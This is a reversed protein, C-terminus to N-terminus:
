KVELPSSNCHYVRGIQLLAHQALSASTCCKCSCSPTGFRPAESAPRLTAKCLSGVYRLGDDLIRSLVLCSVEMSRLNDSELWTAGSTTSPHPELRGFHFAPPLPREEHEAWIEPSSLLRHGCPMRPSSRLQDRGADGHGAGM